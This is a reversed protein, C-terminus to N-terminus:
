DRDSWLRWHSPHVPVRQRTTANIWGGMTRRCAFVLAHVDSGEMVGLELDRDFPATAIANWSNDSATM